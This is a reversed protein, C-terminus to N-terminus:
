KQGFWYGVAFAALNVILEANVSDLLVAVGAFLILVLALVGRWDAKSLLTKIKKFV